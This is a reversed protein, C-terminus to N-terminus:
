HGMALGGDVPVIAGTVYSAAPSCLFAIVAAVEDSTGFRQLPVTTELQTRWAEPMDETMATAIPGPAVVNATIGRSGLERAVSRTLGVLGAKAAAYNAQGPAGLQGSASAVNIIRGFRAKMMAPTCRRTLYFAGTLNTNLVDHWHDDTMRMVLGDHTVGANNVIITAPGFHAEVQKCAHDVSTTDRVDIHIALAQGDAATIAAVTANAGDHDGSYGVGVKIGAAALARCTAAGIGKSGGTVIATREPTTM